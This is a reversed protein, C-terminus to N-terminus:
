YRFDSAIWNKLKMGEHLHYTFGSIPTTMGVNSPCEMMKVDDHWKSDENAHDEHNDPEQFTVNLLLRPTLSWNASGYHRVRADMVVMDGGFDSLIEVSLSSKLISGNKEEWEKEENARADELKERLAMLAYGEDSDEQGSFALFERWRIEEEPIGDVNDLVLPRFLHTGPHIVTPGMITTIPQLSVWSTFLKAKPNQAPPIDCHPKQAFAGPMSVVVTLEVLKADASMIPQRKSSTGTTSDSTTTSDNISPVVQPQYNMHSNAVARVAEVALDSLRTGDCLNLKLLERRFSSRINPDILWGSPGYEAISQRRHHSSSLFAEYSTMTEHHAHHTSNDWLLLKPIKPWSWPRARMSALVEARLAAAAAPSLVGPIQLFGHAQMDEADYAACVTTERLYQSEALVSHILQSRPGLVWDM